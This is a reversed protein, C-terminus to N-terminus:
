EKKKRSLLFEMLAGLSMEEERKSIMYSSKSGLLRRQLKNNRDVLAVRSRLFIGNRVLKM